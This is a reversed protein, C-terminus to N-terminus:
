QAKLLGIFHSTVGTAVDDTPNERCYKELAYGLAAVETIPVLKKSPVTFFGRGANLGSIYGQAWSMIFYDVERNGTRQADSRIELFKGCTFLGAGVM